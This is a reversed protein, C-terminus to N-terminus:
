ALGSMEQVFGCLEALWDVRTARLRASQRCVVAGSRRQTQMPTPRGDLQWPASWSVAPLRGISVQQQDGGKSRELTQGCEMTLSREDRKADCKPTSEMPACLKCNTKRGQVTARSHCKDTADSSAALKCTVGVAAVCDIASRWEASCERPAPACTDEFAVFRSAHEWRQRKPTSVLPRAVVICGSAQTHSSCVPRLQRPKTCFLKVGTANNSEMWAFSFLKRAEGITATRGTPPRARNRQREGIKRWDFHGRACM